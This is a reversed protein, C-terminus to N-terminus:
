SEGSLSERVRHKAVKGMANRPLESCVRLRRPIKYPALRPRSWTQLEDLTVPSDGRGVVVVGVLEGWEPDNIGVVACDAVQPHERLTEEIELASVKYGGTKIIDVSARGLIRYGAKELVAVDGTKFWGERFAKHTEDPRRWYELFTGPGRVEIEGSNGADVVEGNDGVLRVDVGPFPRGVHGPVREGHLPNGLAMGIETMGYRELLAHGTIERWREWRSAPLAASGSVMLRVSESGERLATRHSDSYSDWAAILKHYITPVAMFLTLEGSGIREWTRDPDFAPLLECCAGAWLASSVVNVIGHVHNLPLVCLIRDAASWEWAQHLADVQADVQRHTTVAGKPRGTTGSTYVIMARRDRAVVPLEVPAADLAESISVTPIGAGAAANRVRDAHLGDSLALEAAADEIVFRLEPEPHSAALPVAVGGARGIGWQTAVWEFGPRALLAVRREELDLRGALLRAAVRASADLLDGYTFTGDDDVVATRSRRNAARQVHTLQVTSGM